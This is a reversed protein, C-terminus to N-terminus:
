STYFSLGVKIAVLKQISCVVFNMLGIMIMMTIAAGLPGADIANYGHFRAFSLDVKAQLDPRAQTIIKKSCCREARLGNSFSM